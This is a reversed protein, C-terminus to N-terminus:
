RLHAQIEIERRLQHELKAQTIQTKFIVKLAVVYRSQKERALYVCGFKGKGLAKGIEFNDLAWKKKGRFFM